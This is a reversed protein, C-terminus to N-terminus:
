LPLGIQAGGLPLKNSKALNEEAWMPQLNSFHFCRRQHEARELDFASCPIIHDIHWKGHGRGYNEWGMGGAFLSELHRRLEDGSCGLLEITRGSKWHNNLALHIRRRILMLLRLRADARRRLAERRHQLRRREPNEKRWRRSYEISRLPNRWYSRRMTENVTARNQRQWARNTIQDCSKCRSRVSTREPRAYFENRPKIKGCAYCRKMGRKKLIYGEVRVWAEEPSLKRVRDAKLKACRRARYAIRVASAEYQRRINKGHASQLYGRVQTKRVESQEYRRKWAKRADSREYRTRSVKGAPSMAYRTKYEKRCHNCTHRRLGGVKWQWPFDTIAKEAGCKGCIRRIPDLPM